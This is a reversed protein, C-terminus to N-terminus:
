GIRNKLVEVGYYDLLFLPFASIVAVKNEKDIYKDKQNLLIKLQEIINQPFTFSDNVIFNAKQCHQNIIYSWNEETYNIPHKFIEECNEAVLNKYNNESKAIINKFDVDYKLHKIAESMPYSIYLKGNETENNFLELMAKITDDSAKRDHGDYDFFLYIRSIDYEEIDQINDSNEQEQLLGFLSLYENDNIEKFLEYINNCYVIEKMTNLTENFFYKKMNNFINIEPRKGEFVFINYKKNNLLV